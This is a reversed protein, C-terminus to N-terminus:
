VMGGIVLFDVKLCVMLYFLLVFFFIFYVLKEMGVWFEEGWNFICYILLGLVIFSFDLLLFNFIEM